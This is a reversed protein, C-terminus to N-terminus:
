EKYRVRLGGYDLTAKITSRAGETGVYGKVDHSTGKDKEYTVNMEAPYGIGAYSTAGDLTFSAGPEVYIKFDSYKGDLIVESFGKALEGIKLGGYEISFDAGDSLSEVKYDTYRSNAIVTEVDGIEVNGYRSEVNFRDIRGMNFQDYRSDAKITAGNDIYIKSYKTDFNIDQADNFNIKSYSIAASVDRAKVVTGNGYGLYVKLDGGVGELQFDGYKVEVDANGNIAAVTSNGYKNELSLNCSEPMYVEYNVQFETKKGGWNGGDWWSNKSEISTEAKVFDDDNSFDISIRDFVDQAASESRADVVITVDIKVRNREWTSVEVKGYKNTLDVMGTPSIPFEKKITKTYEQVEEQQPQEQQVPKPQLETPNEALCAFPVSLLGVFLASGITLLRLRRNKFALKM